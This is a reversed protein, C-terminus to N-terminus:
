MLHIIGFQQILGKSNNFVADLFNKGYKAYFVSFNEVREQLSNGPFLDAKLKEVQIQQESFKRKEARLLKKELEILKKIAKTKLAEIHSTLTVDIYASRNELATYLEEIKLLEGNLVYKKNSNIDVIMKMLAHEDKFFDAEKLGLKKITECQKNEVILFSNRLLLVPYPVDAKKFVEQLELWYALEGGGGIFAINPLITEQYAGRLIVNPSFRAPHESLESLIEKTTLEIKSNQIKFKSNQFEIRERKDDVLYFLNLQRGSAQVKYHQELKRTTEAVAKYSFQEKLEKEIVPQFLKKFTANDSILIVLGYDGFLNNLLQLTAQQVTNGQKYAERFFTLLENGYPLVSLQGETENILKFFSKDIKMRGVAGTQKTQWTYKRENITIHNLEELDADESGMFFVPVFSYGNLQANLEEALKISHFIKYIVFLPGTFINPQHATTVTFTNENLLLNINDSTKQSLRLGAYQKQLEDVLVKRHKFKKRQNISQQLGELTSPLNYFPELQKTNTLYDVILKSFFGTQQYPLYSCHTKM